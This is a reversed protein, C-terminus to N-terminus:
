RNENWDVITMHMNLVQNAKSNHVDKPNFVHFSHTISETCSSMGGDVYASLSRLFKPDRVLGAIM